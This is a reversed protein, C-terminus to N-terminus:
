FNAITGFCVHLDIQGLPHVSKDPTIGHFPAVRSLIQSRRVGLLDLTDAYIINLSSGGDM